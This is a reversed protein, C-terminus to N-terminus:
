SGEVPILEYTYTYKGTPQPDRKTDTIVDYYSYGERTLTNGFEDRVTVYRSRLTGDANCIYEEQLLGDQEYSYLCSDTLNGELDYSETRILYGNQYTYLTYGGDGNDWLTDMRLRNGNSDYTYNVRSATGPKGDEMRVINLVTMNGNEDYAMESTAGLEGDWWAEEFVVRHNQDLTLKNERTTVTGDAGTATSCIMNGYEDHEYIITTKLAGDQHYIESELYGQENYRYEYTGTYALAGGPQYFDLSYAKLRYPNEREIYPNEPVSIEIEPKETPAPETAAATTQVASENGSGGCATLSLVMFLALLLATTQKM